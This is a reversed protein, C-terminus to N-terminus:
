GLLEMVSQAGPEFSILRAAPAGWTATLRLRLRDTRVDCDQLYLRRHNDKIDLFPQWGAETGSEACTDSCFYEVVFDRAMIAPMGFVCGETFRNCLMPLWKLGAHGSCSDRNLDSDWVIRILRLDVPAPFKYTVAEGPVLDIGHVADGVERDYGDRILDPDRFPTVDADATAARTEGSLNLELEAARSLELPQRVYNPMYLEVLQALNRLRDSQREYVQQPTLNHRVALTAALGVAQGLLACTSMVRTSSLVIHTVSINRGAMFLNEVNYSYLARYPIGYPARVPGNHNPNGPHTFGGPHHDDLPWGGHSIEDPFCRPE